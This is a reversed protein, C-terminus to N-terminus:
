ESGTRAELTALIVGCVLTVVAAYKVESSTMWGVVLMYASTLALLIGAAIAVQRRKM